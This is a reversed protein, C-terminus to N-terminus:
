CYVHTQPFTLRWLLLQIDSIMWLTIGREAILVCDGTEKTTTSTVINWTQSSYHKNGHVHHGVNTSAQQQSISLTCGVQSYYIYSYINHVTCVLTHVTATSWFLKGQHLAYLCVGNHLDSATSWKCLICIIHDTISLIPDPTGCTKWMHLMHTCCRHCHM